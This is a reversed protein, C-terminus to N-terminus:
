LSTQWTAYLFKGSYFAIMSGLVVLFLSIVLADPSYHGQFFLAGYATYLGDRVLPLGVLPIAVIALVIKAIAVLDTM